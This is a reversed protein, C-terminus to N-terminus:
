WATFGGDVVLNAGTVYSAADSLLFQVTSACESDQAMRGLPVKRHYRELFEPAQNNAVGAFTLTNVRVGAAGWYTALYRTLNYLASKSVSYAVPKYFEEGRQRRYEYLGQDPSVMGYISAINVIAGRKQAAMASGFVQCCLFVGKVNVNMVRDFEAEPYTEFPGNEGAGANPPSDIAAANVLGDPVAGWKTRVAALVGDLSARSTVDATLAMVADSVAVRDVMRDIVVVRAGGARLRETFARGLQGNGGTVLVIRGSLDFPNEPM